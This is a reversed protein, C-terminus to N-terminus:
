ETARADAAMTDELDALSAAPSKEPLILDAAWERPPGMCVREIAGTHVSESWTVLPCAGEGSTIPCHERCYSNVASLLFIHEEKSLGSATGPQFQSLLM